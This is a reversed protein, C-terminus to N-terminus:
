DLDLELSDFSDHDDEHRSPAAPRRSDGSHTKPRSSQPQPTSFDIEDLVDDFGGGHGGGGSSEEDFLGSLLGGSPMESSFANTNVMGTDRGVEDHVRAGELLASMAPLNMSNASTLCSSHIRIDPSRIGFMHQFAPMGEDGDMTEAHVVNGNRMYISGIVGGGSVRITKPVRKEGYLQVLDSLELGLIDAANRTLTRLLERIEDRCGTLDDEPHNLVKVCGQALLAPEYARISEALCVAVEWWTTREQILSSVKGLDTMPDMGIVLLGSRNGQWPHYHLQELVRIDNPLGEDGLLSIVTAATTPTMGAFVLTSLSRHAM